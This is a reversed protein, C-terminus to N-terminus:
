RPKSKKPRLKSAAYYGAFREVRRKPSESFLRKGRFGIRKELELMRQETLKVLPGLDLRALGRRELEPLLLCLDHHDGLLEGLKDLEKREARILRPWAKEFLSLQYLHRKEHKRFEHLHEAGSSRQARRLDRRARAYTERFGREIAGWGKGSVMLVRATDRARSLSEVASGLAASAASEDVLPRTLAADIAQRLPAELLMPQDAVLARFAEALAASSRLEALAHSATRLLERLRELTADPASGKVLALLARLRKLAKRAEHVRYDLSRESPGSLLERAADIETRLLREVGRPLEESRKFLFAL